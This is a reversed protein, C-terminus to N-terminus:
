LISLTWYHDLSTGRPATRANCELWHQNICNLLMLTFKFIEVDVNIFVFIDGFHKSYTYGNIKDYAINQSEKKNLNLVYWYDIQDSFAVQNVLEATNRLSLTFDLLEDGLAKNFLLLHFNLFKILTLSWNYRFSGHDLHM